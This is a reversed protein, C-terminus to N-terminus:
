RFININILISLLFRSCYDLFDIQQIMSLNCAVDLVSACLCFPTYPQLAM